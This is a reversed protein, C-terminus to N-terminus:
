GFNGYKRLEALEEEIRSMRKMEDSNPGPLDAYSGLIEEIPDDHAPSVIVRDGMDVIVVRDTKWRARVAAPISVQGNRSVRFINASRESPRRATTSM